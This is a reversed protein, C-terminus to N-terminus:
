AYPSSSKTYFYLHHAEIVAGTRSIRESMSRFYARHTNAYSANAKLSVKYLASQPSGSAGGSSQGWHIDWQRGSLAEDMSQSSEGYCVSVNM